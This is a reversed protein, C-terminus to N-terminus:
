IKKPSWKKRLFHYICIQCRIKVFNIIYYQYITYTMQLVLLLKIERKKQRINCYKEKNSVTEKIKDICKGFEVVVLICLIM